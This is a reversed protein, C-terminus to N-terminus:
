LSKLLAEKTTFMYLDNVMIYQDNINIEYEIREGLIKDVKNTYSVSIKMGTVFGKEIKNNKLLYIVDGLDYKTEVTM